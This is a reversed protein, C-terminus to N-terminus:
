PSARAARMVCRSATVRLSRHVSMASAFGRGNGNVAAIRQVEDALGCACLQALGSGKKNPAASQERGKSRRM